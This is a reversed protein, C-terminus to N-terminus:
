PCLAQVADARVAATLADCFVRALARLFSDNLAHPATYLDLLSMEKRGGVRSLEGWYIRCGYDCDCLCHLRLAM